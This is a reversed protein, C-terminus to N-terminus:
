RQSRPFGQRPRKWGILRFAIGRTARQLYSPVITEFHDHASERDLHSEQSTNNAEDTLVPPLPV